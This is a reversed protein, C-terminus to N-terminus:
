LEGNEILKRLQIWGIFNSMYRGRVYEYPGDGHRQYLSGFNGLEEQKPVRAIHETPSLHKPNEKVLRDYLEIDKAINIDGEFTNYSIRACRAVAVKLKIKAAEKFLITRDKEIEWNKSQYLNEYAQELLRDESLREGFPIHWEGIQLKVPNSEVMAKGIARALEQIEPMAQPHDRLEFFNKWETGTCIVRIHQFPELLRNVNQKHIGYNNLVSAEDIVRRKTFDWDRNLKEIERPDQIREGQMGKQNRTWLPYVGNEEIDQIVKEVPIARSSASNKSLVRHTMFESHIYRPYTLVLTVIRQNLWNTSDAIIKATIM